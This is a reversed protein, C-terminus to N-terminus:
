LTWCWREDIDIKAINTTGFQISSQGVPISPFDGTMKVDMNTSGKYVTQLRSDVTVSGDVDDIGFRVGNIILEVHGSGYITILPESAQDGPNTVSTTSSFSQVTTRLYQFPDITAELSFTAIAESDDVTVESVNANKVLYYYNPDNSFALKTANQIIGNFQRKKTQLNTFDFYTLPVSITADKWGLKQTLSGHKRGPVPTYLVDRQSSPLTPMKTTYIGYSQLSKDDILTEIM